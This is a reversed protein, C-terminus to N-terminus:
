QTQHHTVPVVLMEQPPKNKPISMDIADTITCTLEKIHMHLQAPMHIDERTELGDLKCELTKNVKKWNAMKFNLQPTEKQVDTTITM